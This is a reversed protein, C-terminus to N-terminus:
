RGAGALVTRVIGDIVESSVNQKSIVGAAGEALRARKADDLPKSTVIVVPIDRTAPDSKLQELVAEGQLDAMVLDLFILDPRDARARRLGEEGGGAELVTPVAGRLAQRLIYRATPDDDVILARPTQGRGTLRDLTELLWTREVPKMAYDDAGLALAKGRDDVTTVVVVPIDRTAEANKIDALLGWSDEGQLLIDLLIAAPRFQALAARPRPSVAFPPRGPLGVGPPVARLDAAVGANDEVVLVPARDRDPLWTASPRLSPVPSPGYIIPSPRRPLHLRRRRARWRCAGGLLEALKRSLPLGLGTGKVRRQLPSDVQRSSRSSRAGPGGAAIGIGTDAVAFCSADGDPRWRAAVRVEGRETFKLANSIFNRLIQSVKGEDTYSRRCGAPEEFVLAM